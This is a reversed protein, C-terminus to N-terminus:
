RSRGEARGTMGTRNGELRGRDPECLSFRTELRELLSPNVRQFSRYYGGQFGILISFLITYLGLLAGVARVARRRGATSASSLLTWFGIAALLLAASTFDALFRMTSFQMGLAPLSALLTVALCATVWWLYLRHRADAAAGSPVRSGLVCPRMATWVAAAGFLVCPAALLIGVVPELSLYGTEKAFVWDPPMAAAGAPAVVYPFRCSVQVPQLLYAHLTSPFRAVSFSYPLFGLQHTAGFETWSGFRMQNYLGLGFLAIAVPAGVSLLRLGVGRLRREAGLGAIWATALVLAGIALLLSIRCALAAGWACGAVSLFVAQRRSSAASGVALGGMLLGALLFCQAGEIAAEYVGARGLGFLYPNALGFVAVAPAALWPHLRPFLRRLTLVLIAMGLALRGLVFALALREDGILLERGAVAKVAALLLAPVPGWYLYYRGQHLTADWLWLPKNAPDYPDAKALLEPRPAIGLYLHGDLFADALVSFYRSQRPIQTVLGASIFFLYVAAIAVFLLGLLLWPTRTAFPSRADARHDQSAM